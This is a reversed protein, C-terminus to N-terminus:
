ISMLSFGAFGNARTTIVLGPFVLHWNFANYWRKTNSPIFRVYSLVTEPHPLYYVISCMRIAEKGHYIIFLSDPPINWLATWTSWFPNVTVNITSANLKDDGGGGRSMSVWHPSLCDVMYTMYTVDNIKCASYPQLFTILHERTLHCNHANHSQNSFSQISAINKIALYFCATKNLQCM